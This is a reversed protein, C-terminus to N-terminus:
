RNFVDGYTTFAMFTMLMVLGAAHVWVEIKADVKRRSAAEVGLFLLRGGDLFPFPLLNFLGMTASLMGLFRLLVGPGMQAQTAAAKVIGVPGSFAVPGHGTLFRGLVVLNEHVFMAPAVVGLRAAEIVDRGGIVLGFFVLISAFLLNALPGAAITVVRAWVGANAYSGRDAPDREEYPSMGAIQVYALFPLIGVQYVTASGRPQRRWITPGFGVSFREVRMGFWRAAAYHGAEHVVLLLGLGLMAVLYFGLTM